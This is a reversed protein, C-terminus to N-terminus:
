WCAAAAAPLEPPPSVVLAALAWAKGGRGACYDLVADGPQVEAAQHGLHRIYRLGLHNPGHQPPKTWTTPPPRVAVILQSGEDQIDFLGESFGPLQWVGGHPPRGDPLWVGWPSRGTPAARVGAAEIAAILEARSTKSSNGPGSCVCM